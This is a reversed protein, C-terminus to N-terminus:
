NSVSHKVFLQKATLISGIAAILMVISALYPYLVPHGLMNFTKFPGYIYDANIYRLYYFDLVNKLWQPSDSQIIEVVKIASVAAVGTFAPILINKAKASVVLVFLGLAIDAALNTLFQVTFYGLMSFAYEIGSHATSIQIPNSWNGNGLIGIGLMTQLICALSAIVVIFVLAALLKARVIPNRGKKSSLILADVSTSYEESFVPSIALIILLAIFLYVNEHNFIYQWIGNYKSTDPAEIKKLYNYELKKKRYDYSNTDKVKIESKLKTLQEKHNSWWINPYSITDHLIEYDGSSVMISNKDTKIANNYTDYVYNIHSLQMSASLILGILMVIGIIVTKKFFIKHLEHKFLDM